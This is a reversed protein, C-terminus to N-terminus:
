VILDSNLSVQFTDEPDLIEFFKYLLWEASRVRRKQNQIADTAAFTDHSIAPWDFEEDLELLRLNRLLTVCSSSPQARGVPKTTKSMQNGLRQVNFATCTIDSDHARSHWSIACSGFYDCLVSKLRVGFSFQQTSFRTQKYRLLRRWSVSLYPLCPHSLAVSEKAIKISVMLMFFLYNARIDKSVKKATPVICEWLM